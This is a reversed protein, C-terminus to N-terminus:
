VDYPDANELPVRRLDKAPNGSDSYVARPVDENEIVLDESHGPERVRAGEDPLHTPSSPSGTLKAPRGPDIQILMTANVHEVIGLLPDGDKLRSIFPQNQLPLHGKRNEPRREADESVEVIDEHRFAIGQNVDDIGCPVRPSLKPFAQGLDRNLQCPM